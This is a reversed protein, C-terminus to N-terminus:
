RGYGKRKREKRDTAAFQKLSEYPLLVRRGVKRTKLEGRAILYDVMRLSIGLAQAAQRKGFLLANSVDIEQNRYMRSDEQPDSANEQESM